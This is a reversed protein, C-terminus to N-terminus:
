RVDLQNPQGAAALKRLSLPSAMPLIQRSIKSRQRRNSVIQFSNPSALTAIWTMLNVMCVSSLCIESVVILADSFIARCNQGEFYYCILQVFIIM